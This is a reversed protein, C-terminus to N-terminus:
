PTLVIKGINRREQLARHALAARDFPYVESVRPRIKGERYLDLVATMEEELM